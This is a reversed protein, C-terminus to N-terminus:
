AAAAAAAETRGGGEGHVDGRRHRARGRTGDRDGARHSQHARDDQRHRRRSRRRADRRDRESILDRSEEDSRDAGRRDRGAGSTRRSRRAPGAAQPQHPPVRRPRVGARFDCRDCADETPAAALFGGEVARDIVQLVEIGAARTTREASDPARFLEGGGHLLVAAGALRGAAARGRDGDRVAGAAASRRRRHHGERDPRAQSRDQSRHRAAGQDDRHEEILDVAGRLRFGGDITVDDRVSRPDREGPVSGFGFEFYRPRWESATARLTTCGDTSTAAFRRSRTTGSAIWRRRSSTTHESGRGRRDGRRARM